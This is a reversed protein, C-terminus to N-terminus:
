RPFLVSRPPFLVLSDEPVLLPITRRSRFFCPLPIFSRCSLDIPISIRMDSVKALILGVKLNSLCATCLFHFQDSEEPVENDLDSAERHPYLFLLRSFDDYIRASTDVEVTMFVIPDPRSLYIQRYNRIKDRDM